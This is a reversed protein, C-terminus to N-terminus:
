EEEVALNNAAFSPTVGNSVILNSGLAGSYYLNGAGSANSGISVHTLTNGTAGCQNFNTASTNYVRNGSITWGAANRSVAIRGYNTYACEGTLQNGAEGPDSVHLGVYLDAYPSSHNQAIGVIATGQFLLTILSTEFANSKGM